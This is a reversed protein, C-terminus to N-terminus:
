IPLLQFALIQTALLNGDSVCDKGVAKKMISSESPYGDRLYIQVGLTSQQDM